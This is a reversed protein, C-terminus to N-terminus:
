LIMEGQLWDCGLQRFFAETESTDVGAAIVDANMDHAFDVISRLIVAVRPNIDLQRVFYPDIRIMSLDLDCLHQLSFYGTGFNDLAAGIGHEALKRQVELTYDIDQLMTNEAAALVLREPQHGAVAELIGATLEPHHFQRSSIPVLLGVDTHEAAHKCAESLMYRFLVHESDSEEALALVKEHTLEDDGNRKWALTVECMRQEGAASVIPQWALRIEGKQMALGFEHRTLPMHESQCDNGPDYVRFQNKGSQKAEYMAIDAYKVLTEEDRSHQPFLSVGVSTSIHLDNGHILYPKSIDQVIRGAVLDGDEPTKIDALIILFEDGGFRAVTDVKRVCQLLRKAVHQLLLDGVNHGHTDNVKKFGDLDLFRVGVNSRFRSARALSQALRDLFLSRNPLGTLTDHHAIHVLKHEFLKREHIDAQTGVMHIPEDKDNWIAQGRYMYWRYTGDKHRMKLETKFSESRRHLYERLNSLLTPRDETAVLRLLGRISPKVEGRAYGLTAEWGESFWMRGSLINWDWIGENTSQLLLQWREESRYLRGSKADLDEQLNDRELRLQEQADALRLMAKIQAMLEFTEFPKKLFADAGAELSRTKLSDASDMGTVIIIPIHRTDDDAKLHGCIKYGSMGPLMLDLLIVDPQKGKAARIGTNGDVALLVEVEPMHVEVLAKLTDLLIVDDDIFLIKPM